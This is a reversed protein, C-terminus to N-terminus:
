IYVTWDYKDLKIEFFEEYLKVRHKFRAENTLSHDKELVGNLEFVKDIDDTKRIQVGDFVKFQQMTNVFQNSTILIYKNNTTRKLYHVIPILQILDGLACHRILGIRINMNKFKQKDFLVDDKSLFHYNKLLEKGVDDPVEFWEDRSLTESWNYKRVIFRQTPNYGNYKVFM